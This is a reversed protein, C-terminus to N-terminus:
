GGTGGEGTERLYLEPDPIDRYDDVNRTVLTLQYELATAAILLDLARPRVRRGRARLAERLRACRQAVAISLPLVPVTNALAQLKAQADALDPSRLTGQYAEMYSIISIAVGEAALESLLAEAAPAQALHDILWDTDILYPM